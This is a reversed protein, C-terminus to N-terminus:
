ISYYLNEYINFIKHSYNNNFNLNLGGYLNVSYLLFLDSYETVKKTVLTDFNPLQKLGMKM